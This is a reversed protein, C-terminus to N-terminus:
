FLFVPCVLPGFLPNYKMILLHERKEPQLYNKCTGWSDVFSETTCQLRNDSNTAWCYSPSFITPTFFSMMLLNSLLCAVILVKVVRDWVILRRSRWVIPIWLLSLLIYVFPTLAFLPPALWIMPFFSTIITWIICVLLMIKLHFLTKSNYKRKLKETM